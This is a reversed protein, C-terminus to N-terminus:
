TNPPEGPEASPAVPQDEPPTATPGVLQDEPSASASPLGPLPTSAEESKSLSSRIAILFGIAVILTGVAIVTTLSVRGGEPDIISRTFLRTGSDSFPLEWSLAEDQVSTATSSEIEGPMAVTVTVTVDDSFQAPDSGEFYPVVDDISTLANLQGDIELVGEDRAISVEGIGPALAELIGTLDEASARSREASYRTVSGPTVTFALGAESGRTAVLDEFERQTLRYLQHFEEDAAIDVAMSGSGDSNLSIGVDIDITCASAALALLAILAVRRM